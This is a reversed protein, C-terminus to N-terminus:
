TQKEDMLNEFLFQVEEELSDMTYFNEEFFDFLVTGHIRSSSEDYIYSVKIQRLGNEIDNHWRMSSSFSYVMGKEYNITKYGFIVDKVSCDRKCVIKTLSNKM